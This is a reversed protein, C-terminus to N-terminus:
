EDLLEDLEIKKYESRCCPCVHSFINIDLREFMALCTSHFVHTCSLLVLAKKSSKKTTKSQEPPSPPPPSMPSSAAVAEQKDLACKKKPIATSSHHLASVRTSASFRPKPKSSQKKERSKSSSELIVKKENSSKAMVYEEEEDDEEGQFEMAIDSRCQLKMENICIPCVAKQVDGDMEFTRKKAMEWADQWQDLSMDQIAMRDIEATTRDIIEKSVAVQQDLHQFFRNLEDSEEQM